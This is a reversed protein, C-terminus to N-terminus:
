IQKEALEWLIKSELLCMDSLGRIAKIGRIKHQRGFYQVIDKAADLQNQTFRMEVNSLSPTYVGLTDRDYLVEIDTATNRVAILGM